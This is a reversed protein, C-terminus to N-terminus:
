QLLAVSLRAHPLLQDAMAQVVLLQEAMAQVVLAAQEAMAQVVLAATDLVVLCSQGFV